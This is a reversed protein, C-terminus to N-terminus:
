HVVAAEWGDYSGHYRRALAEFVIRAARVHEITPTEPRSAVVAWDTRVASGPAAGLPRELVVTFGRRELADVATRADGLEPVYLYHTITTQKALNAGNSLLTSLAHVDNLEAAAPSPTPSARATPTVVAAKGVPARGLFLAAVVFALGAILCGLGLKVLSFERTM